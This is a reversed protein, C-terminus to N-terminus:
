GISERLQAVWLSALAMRSKEKAYESEHYAVDRLALKVRQEIYQEASKRKPPHNRYFDVMDDHELSEDLQQLMFTKLGNHLKTPPTWAEVKDRMEAYKQHLAISHSIAEQQHQVDKEFEQQALASAAEIALSKAEDLERRAKELAKEHYDDPSFESPLESGFGVDRLFYLVDIGRACRLAFDKFTAGKDIIDTYGTPM